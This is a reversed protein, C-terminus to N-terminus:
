PRYSETVSFQGLLMYWRALMGDSNHCKQLWRLLRCDTRTFQAGWLYSRFHNCMTVPALMERRTTCYRLQSLRLSHSGYAVVVERDGQLQNLVGGVAFLSADTDFVFLDDETPFGLIPAQLLCSKLKMFAEQREPTWAFVAWKRTLVVLPELLEAFNQIFWRCYGVFGIFQRVQKVSGPEHWARVASIKVPDCALGSQGVIHGLFAVETQM